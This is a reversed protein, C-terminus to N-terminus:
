IGNDSLQAHDGREHEEFYMALDSETGIGEPM